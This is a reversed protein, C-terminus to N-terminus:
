ATDRENEIQDILLIIRETEKDSLEKRLKRSFSSDRIGLKDAIEWLRVDKEDAYARIKLNKM